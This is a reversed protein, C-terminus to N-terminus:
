AAQPATAATLEAVLGAYRRLPRGLLAELRKVAAAGPVMGQQQIRAMMLRMDYAMWGPAFGALQAEFAALDNGGYVVERGLAESWVAAASTGTLLEPGVVDLTIRPLPGEARDRRLLEAVAVDAIDRTDVMAVGASGIPMPYVGHGEVVAQVQRDNQMFYAPRLVTAPLDLTEIMREVTHKGTFHPVDTYADAHIVSLYVIREVGAERALNLTILAQTVEDPTVANLLFLTRTSALARRMSAVDTLDAVVESAGPPLAAKGATRVLAKVPAGARALGQVVLSGITGTAGTVLISM